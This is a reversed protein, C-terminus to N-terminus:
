SSPRAAGKGCANPIPFVSSPRSVVTVASTAATAQIAAGLGGSSAARNSTTGDRRHPWASATGVNKLYMNWLKAGSTDAQNRPREAPRVSEVLGWRSALAPRPSSYTKMIMSAGRNPAPM